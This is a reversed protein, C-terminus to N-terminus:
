SHWWQRHLFAVATLVHFADWGPEIEMLWYNPSPGFWGLLRTRGATGIVNMRLYLPTDIRWPDGHALELLHRQRFISRVSLKWLRSDGRYMAYSIFSVPGERRIVGQESGDAGLVRMRPSYHWRPVLRLCLTGPSEPSIEDQDDPVAYVFVPDSTDGEIATYYRRRDDLWAPMRADKM